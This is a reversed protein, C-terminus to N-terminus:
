INYYIHHILMFNCVNIILERRLNGFCIIVSWSLFWVIIAVTDLM